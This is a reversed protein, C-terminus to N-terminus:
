GPRSGRSVQAVRGDFYMAQSPTSDLRVSGLWDAHRWFAPPAPTYVAQVGGALPAIYKLVTQGNMFVLKDGTPSYVVQTYTSGNGREVARGLADYATTVGDFVDSRNYVTM